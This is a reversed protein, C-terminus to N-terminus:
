VSGTHGELMNQVEGMSSDWVQVLNDESRSVICRGDPL